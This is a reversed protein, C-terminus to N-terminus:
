YENPWVTHTGTAAATCKEAAAGDQQVTIAFDVVVKPPTEPKDVAIPQGGTGTAGGDGGTAAGGEGARVACGSAGAAVRWGRSRSQTFAPEADTVRHLKEFSLASDFGRPPGAPGQPARLFTKTEKLFLSFDSGPRPGGRGFERGPRSLLFRFPIAIAALAFFICYM